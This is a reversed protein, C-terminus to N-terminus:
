RMKNHFYHWLSHTSCYVLIYYNILYHSVSAWRGLRRVSYPVMMVCKWHKARHSVMIQMSVSSSHQKYHIFYSRCGGDDDDRMSMRNYFVFCPLLEVVSLFFPKESLFRLVNNKERRASKDLSGRRYREKLKNFSELRVSEGFLILKLMKHLMKIETTKRLWGRSQACVVFVEWVIANWKWWELRHTSIIVNRYFAPSPHLHSFSFVVLLLVLVTSPTLSRKTPVHCRYNHRRLSSSLTSLVTSSPIHM